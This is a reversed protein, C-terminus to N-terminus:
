KRYVMINKVIKDVFLNREDNNFRNGNKSKYEKIQNAPIPSNWDVIVKAKRKKNYPNVVIFETQLVTTKSIDYNNNIRTINMPKLWCVFDIFNNQLINYKNMKLYSDIRDYVDTSSNIYKATLHLIYFDYNNDFSLKKVIYNRYESAENLNSSKTEIRESKYFPANQWVITMKYRGSFPKEEIFWFQTEYSCNQRQTFLLKPKVIDMDELLTSFPEGIYKEENLEFQKLYNLTDLQATAKHYLMFSFVCLIKLYLNM